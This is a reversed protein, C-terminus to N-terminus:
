CYFKIIISPVSHITYSTILSYLEILMEIAITEIVNALANSIQSEIISIVVILNM